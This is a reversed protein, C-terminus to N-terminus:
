PVALVCLDHDIDTGAPHARWTLEERGIMISEAARTVHCATLLRGPAVLVASGDAIHGARKVRLKYVAAAPTFQMEQEEAQACRAAVTLLVLL